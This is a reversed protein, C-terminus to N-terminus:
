CKKYGRWNQYSESKEDCRWDNSYSDSYLIAIIAIVILLDVLTFGEKITM